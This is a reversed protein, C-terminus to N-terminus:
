LYIKNTCVQIGNGGYATIGFRQTRQEVSNGAESPTDQKELNTEVRGSAEAIQDNM